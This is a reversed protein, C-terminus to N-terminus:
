AASSWAAFLRRPTTVALWFTILYVALLGFVVPYTWVVYPTYQPDGQRYGMYAGLGAIVLVGACLLGPVALFLLFWATDGQAAWHNAIVVVLAAVVLWVTVFTDWQANAPAKTWNAFDPLAIGQQLGLFVSLEVAVFYSMLLYGVQAVGLALSTRAVRTRGQPDLGSLGVWVHRTLRAASRAANWWGSAWLALAVLLAVLSGPGLFAKLVIVPVDTPDVLDPM